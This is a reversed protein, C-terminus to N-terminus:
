LPLPFPYDPGPVIRTGTITGEVHTNGMLNGSLDYNDQNWTGSFHNGDRSVTLRSNEISVGIATTGDFLYFTHVLDYTRPGVKKWAGICFNNGANFAGVDNLLETGGASFQAFGIDNLVGYKDYYVKKWLGLVTAGPNPLNAQDSDVEGPAAPQQLSKGLPSLANGNHAVSGCEARSFPAALISLAILVLSLRALRPKNLMATRM